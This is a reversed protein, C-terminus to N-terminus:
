LSRFIFKPPLPRLEGHGRTHPCCALWSGSRLYFLATLGKFGLTMMRNCKSTDLAM